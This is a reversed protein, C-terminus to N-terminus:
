VEKQLSNNELFAAIAQLARYQLVRIAGEKKNMIKATEAVSYGKIIRLEVVKRQEESISKLAADILARQTSTEIPDDTALKLPDTNELSVGTGRRKNKRWRDRLINLSVTKLFSTYKDVDDIGNKQFRSLAKVYTEQTIDEAEERNQVRLYIFRYVSEWTSSCIEEILKLDGEQAKNRKGKDLM